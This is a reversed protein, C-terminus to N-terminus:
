FALVNKYLSIIHLFTFFLILFGDALNNNLNNFATTGDKTSVLCDTHEVSSISYPHEAHYHYQCSRYPTKKLVFASRKKLWSTRANFFRCAPITKTMM